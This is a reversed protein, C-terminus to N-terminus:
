KGKSTDPPAPLSELIYQEIEACSPPVIRLGDLFSDFAGRIKRAAVSVGKGSELIRLRREKSVLARFIRQATSHAIIPPRKGEAPVVLLLGKGNVSYGLEKALKKEVEDSM